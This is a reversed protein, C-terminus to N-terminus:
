TEHVMKDNVMVNHEEQRYQGDFHRDDLKQLEMEAAMNEQSVPQEKKEDEGKHLGGCFGRLQTYPRIM